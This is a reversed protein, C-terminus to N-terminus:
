GSIRRRNLPEMDWDRLNQSRMFIRLGFCRPVRTTFWIKETERGPTTEDNMKCMGDRMEELFRTRSAAVDGELPVQKKSLSSRHRAVGSLDGGRLRGARDELDLSPDVGDRNGIPKLHHRHLLLSRRELVLIANADASFNFLDSKRSVRM